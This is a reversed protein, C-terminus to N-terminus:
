FMHSLFVIPQNLVLLEKYRAFVNGLVSTQHSLNIKPKINKSM